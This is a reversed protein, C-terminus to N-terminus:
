KRRVDERDEKKHKGKRVKKERKGAKRRKNEGQRAESKKGRSLLHSSLSGRRQIKALVEEGGERRVNGRCSSGGTGTHTERERKKRIREKKRRVRARLSEGTEKNTIKWWEGISREEVRPIVFSFPMLPSNISTECWHLGGRASGLSSKVRSVRCSLGLPLM